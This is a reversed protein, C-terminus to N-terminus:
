YDYHWLMDVGSRYDGSATIVLELNRRILYEVVVQRGAASGGLDQLFAIFLRDSIFKGAKISTGSGGSKQSNEFEIVDIGFRDAALTEIQDLLIDVAIHTARSGDSRSSVTQEWGALAHFPRGFLTYSIIDQLEMEPESEYEFQPDSVTGTILYYIRIDEYQRRPQYLTRIDLAPDAPDGSFTINGRELNFRKNFTTVHGSPIEMQGFLQLDNFPEKLLDLEGRIALNIAPDRRNYIFANRDVTFNVDMGLRNYFDPGEQVEEAEEELVVEEVEQNGFDDMFLTGREWRIDGSVFPEDLSGALRLDMGTFIEIDRTNFMRFNSATFQLDMEEPTFGEMTISGEGNLIGGSQISLRNMDVRGPSFEFDARINRLTINNRALYLQGSSLILGGTMVPDSITGQINLDANLNGQLNRLTNPNLFDNLSALNFDRTLISINLPDDAKPGNIELHQFDIHLPLRGDMDLAKQGLSHVESTISINNRNHDYNWSLMLTDVSVGSLAGQRLRMEGTMEPEGARGALNTLLSFEGSIGGFGADALVDDFQSIDMPKVELYGNVEEQFFGSELSEPHRPEFPLHFESRVIERGDHWIFFATQLRRGAVNFSLHLSDLELQNRRFQSINVMGELELREEDVVFGIRGTFMAEFLPQDLFIYQAQGLDTHSADVFGTWPMGPAKQLSMTLESGRESLLRLTDVQVYEEAIKVDFPAQLTYTGAPDTLLLERTRVLVTDSILYDARQRLGSENEVNFVFDYEGEVGNDSIRGETVLSIDRVMRAGLSPNRLEIDVYYEIEEALLSMAFGEIRDIRITDYQVSDLEMNSRFVLDGAPDPQIFGNLRGKAQLTDTGALHAFGQLDRLQLDFDLRNEIDRVDFINQVLSLRGTAVDSNLRAEEVRAIGNRMALDMQVSEFVQRNIVSEDFMLSANLLLTEPDFGKGTASLTGNIGTALEELGSFVGANLNRIVMSLSYEPEEMRWLMGGELDIQAGVPDDQGASTVTVPEEIEMDGVNSGSVNDPHNPRNPMGTGGQASALRVTTRTHLSDATIEGTLDLSIEPYNFIRIRGAEMQTTWPVRGPELGTGSVQGRLTVEGDFREINAWLAPNLGAMHYSLTWARGQEMWQEANFDMWISENGKRLVIESQASGNQAVINAEMEDMSYENFQLASLKMRGSAQIQDWENWPITGDLALEFAEARANLTDTGMLEGTDIRGSTISLSSLVPAQIFSWRSNINLNEIGPAHVVAGFQLDQRSGGLHMNVTLDQRVPYKKLYAEAESWALPDLLSEMNLETTVVDYNGSIEVLTMAGAILLKDLTLHQGDWSASSEFQVPEDLRSEHLNLELQYLDTFFGEQGRGLRTHLQLNRIFFTEGPFVAGAEVRLEPASLYIDHIVFQFPEKVREDPEIEQHEDDPILALLNWNREEDQQIDANLGSVRLSRIELPRRFLLDTLSFSVRISDISVLPDSLGSGEEYLRVNVVNLQSGLDGYIRDIRLDGRIMESIRAEAESRVIDLLNESRMALRLGALLVIIAILSMWPWLRRRRNQQETEKYQELDAM